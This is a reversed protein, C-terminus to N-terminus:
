RFNKSVTEHLAAGGNPVTEKACEPSSHTQLFRHSSVLCVLFWTALDHVVLILFLLCLFHSLYLTFIATFNFALIPIVSVQDM